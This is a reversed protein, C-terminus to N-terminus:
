VTKSLVLELLADELPKKGAHAEHYIKLVDHSLALIEERTWYKLLRSSKQIAYPSVTKTSKELVQILTKLQWWLAGHIEEPAISQSQLQTLVNIAEITQKAFFADTFTFSNIEKEGVSGRSTRSDFGKASTRDYEELKDSHKKLVSRIETLSKTDKVGLDKGSSKGFLADEVIIWIHESTKLEPLMHIIYESPSQQEYTDKTTQTAESAISGDEAGGINQTGSGESEHVVKPSTGGTLINDLVVIYKTSFLGMSRTLETFQGSNWNQMHLRFFGADQRKNRLADILARSRARVKEIDTGIFTYLM